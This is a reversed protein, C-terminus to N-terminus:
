PLIKDIQENIHMRNAYYCAVSGPGHDRLEELMDPLMTNVERLFKFKLPKANLLENLDEQTFEPHIKIFNSLAVLQDMQHKTVTLPKRLRRILPQYSGGVIVEKEQSGSLKEFELRGTLEAILNKRQKREM